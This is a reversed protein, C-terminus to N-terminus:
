ILVESPSSEGDPKRPLPYQGARAQSAMQQLKVSRIVKSVTDYMDLDAERGALYEASYVELYLGFGCQMEEIDAGKYILTEAVKTFLAAKHNESGAGGGEHIAGEVGQAGARVEAEATREAEAEAEAARVQSLRRLTGPGRIAACLPHNHWTGELVSYGESPAVSRPLGPLSLLLETIALDGQQVAAYLPSISWIEVSLDRMGLPSFNGSQGVNLNAESAMVLRQVVSKHGHQAAIFLPATRALYGWSFYQLGEEPQAHVALLASVIGANGNSAAAYLATESRYVQLWGAVFFTGDSAEQRAGLLLEVTELSDAKAAAYLPAIHGLFGFGYSSGTEVSAPPSAALLARTMKHDGRAAAVYLPTTHALGWKRSGLDALAHSKLLLEVIDLHGAEAAIYLPSTHGLLGAPGLFRGQRRWATEDLPSSPLLAEMIGKHGGKAVAFLLTEQSDLGWHGYSDPTYSDPEQSQLLKVMDLSDDGLSPSQVAAHLPSTGGLLGGLVLRGEGKSAGAAILEQLAATDGRRAAAYLPTESQWLFFSKLGSHPSANNKLLERLIHIHGREAAVYLPTILGTPVSIDMVSQYQVEFSDPRRGHKLLGQVVDLGQDDGQLVASMLASQKFALTDSLCFGLVIGLILLWVGGVTEPLWREVWGEPRFNQLVWPESLRDEPIEVRGRPSRSRFVRYGQAPHRAGHGRDGSAPSAAAPRPPPSPGGPSSSRAGRASGTNDSSRRPM